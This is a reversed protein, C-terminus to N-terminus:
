RASAICRFYALTVTSRIFCVLTVTICVFSALTVTSCTICALTVTSCVISALTVTSCSSVPLTVTISVSCVTGVPGIRMSMRAGDGSKSPTAATGGGAFRIKELSDVVDVTGTGDRCITLETISKM